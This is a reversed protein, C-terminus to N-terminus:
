QEPVISLDLEVDPIAAPVYVGISRTQDILNWCPGATHVRFYMTGVGPSIQSPPTPVHELALGPYAEKVLRAIHKASCIKVLTPVRSIVEGQSASSRVGLYWTARGLVRRDTVAGLYFYPSASLLFERYSELVQEDLASTAGLQEASVQRLAVSISTTPLVVELHDRIHRELAGFCAGLDDHDYLPLSRPHSQLAFTCLAGALRSMESFLVEPHCGRTQFFHRLPPLSSHLTHSLWFDAIERSAYEALTAQSDRRQAIMADAKSDLREVLRGLLEMLPASAGISVCPPVYAPDYIFHGSGDRRVRAIPLSVLDESGQTDLILRFNKRAVAVPKEEQGTTEDPISRTMSSFRTDPFAGNSDFACNSQRPRFRHVALLVTHSDHTPSFLERIDLPKPLPDDPFQFVLGDPMIGRAHTLSVTGNILAEPDLELGALGHPQYFVSSLTFAVLDEFYQSQAQFHHQALHMGESWVVRSLLKM